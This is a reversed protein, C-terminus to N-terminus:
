ANFMRLPFKLISYVLSLPLTLYNLKVQCLFMKVCFVDENLGERVSQEFHLVCLDVSLNNVLFVLLHMAAISTSISM